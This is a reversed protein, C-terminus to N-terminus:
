RKVPNCDPKTQGHCNGPNGVPDGSNINYCKAEGNKCRWEYNM